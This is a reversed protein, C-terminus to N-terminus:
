KVNDTVILKEVSNQHSMDTVRREGTAIALRM